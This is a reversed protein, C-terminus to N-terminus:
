LRELAQGLEISSWVFAVPEGSALRTAGYSELATAM